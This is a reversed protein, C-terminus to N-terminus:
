AWAPARSMRHLARPTVGELFTIPLISTM